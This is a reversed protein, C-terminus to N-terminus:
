RDFLIHPHLNDRLWPFPPGTEYDLPYHQTGNYHFDLFPATQLTLRRGIFTRAFPIPIRLFLGYNRAQDLQQVFFAVTTQRFQRAFHFTLIDQRNLGRGWTALTQFQLRHWRWGASLQYDTYRLASYQWGPRPEDLGLRQPWSAYGTYGLSAGAFLRDQWFFRGLRARAGYRWPQFYGLTIAGFTGRALRLQQSFTLLGPRHRDEEPLDLENWLPIIYQCQLLSGPWLRLFASPQLNVQVQVPDPNAGFAFRFRPELSLLLTYNEYRGARGIVPHRRSARGISWDSAAVDARGERLPFLHTYFPINRDLVEIRIARVRDAPLSDLLALLRRTAPAGTRYLSRSYAIHLTDGDLQCAADPFAHQRLRAEWGAAADAPPATQAALHGSLLLLLPVLRCLM